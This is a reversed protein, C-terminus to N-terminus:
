PDGTGVRNLFALVEADTIPTFNDYYESVATFEAPTVLCILEDARGQLFVQAEPSCVPTAFVVRSPGRRRVSEIAAAATAGTAVGDDVLIVLRGQFPAPPHDTEFLREQRGLQRTEEAITLDIYRQGIGLRRILAENLYTVDPAVAGIADEPRGPASVKRALLVDFPAQLARAIQYGVIAGGRLLAVVVPAQARYGELRAALRRGADVRDNLVM